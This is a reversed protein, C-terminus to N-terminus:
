NNAVRTGPNMSSPRDNGIAEHHRALRAANAEADRRM